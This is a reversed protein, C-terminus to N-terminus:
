LTNTLKKGIFGNIYLIIGYGDIAANEKFNALELLGIKRVGGALHNKYQM